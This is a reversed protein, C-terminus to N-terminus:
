FKQPARHRLVQEERRKRFAALKPDSYSENTLRLREMEVLHEQVAVKRDEIAQLNQERNQDEILSM